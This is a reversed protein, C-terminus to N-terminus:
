TPTPAASGIVNAPMMTSNATTAIAAESNGAYRAARSSGITASCSSYVVFVRFRRFRPQSDCTDVYQRVIAGRCPAFCEGLMAFREGLMAFCEGLMAFCEGLMVFCEGLMAFCEGLM